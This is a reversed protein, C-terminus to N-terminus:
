FSARVSVGFHRPYGLQTYLRPFVWEDRPDNMFYYGRVFYKEDTANKLWAKAEWRDRQFQIGVNILEYKESKFDHQDWTGQSDFDM